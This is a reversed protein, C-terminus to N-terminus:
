DIKYKKEYKKVRESKLRQRTQQWMKMWMRTMEEEFNWKSKERGCIEKSEKERERKRKKSEGKEFTSIIIRNNICFFLISARDHFQRCCCCCYVAFNIAEFFQCNKVEKTRQGCRCQVSSTNHGKDSIHSFLFKLLGLDLKSFFKGM